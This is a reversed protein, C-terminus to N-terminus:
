KVGKINLAENFYGARIRTMYDCQNNDCLIYHRNKILRFTTGQKGCFECKKNSFWPKRKFEKKM